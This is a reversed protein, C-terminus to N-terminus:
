PSCIGKGSSDRNICREPDCCENDHHCENLMVRCCRALGHCNAAWAPMFARCCNHGNSVCRGANYCYATEAGVTSVEDISQATAGGVSPPTDTVGCAAIAFTSFCL